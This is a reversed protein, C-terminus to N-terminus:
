VINLYDEFHIISSAGKIFNTNDQAYMFADRAMSTSLIGDYLCAPVHRISDGPEIVTTPIDDMKGLLEMYDCMESIIVVGHGRIKYNNKIINLIITNNTYPTIITTIKNRRSYGVHKMLDDSNVGSIVLFYVSRSLSAEVYLTDVLKTLEGVASRFGLCELGSVDNYVSKAIGIINTDIREDLALKCADNMSANGCVCYLRDIRKLHKVAMDVDVKDHSQNMEHISLNVRENNNLGRFGDRFGIVRSGNSKEYKGIYRIVEKVGPCLGGATLIGVNM